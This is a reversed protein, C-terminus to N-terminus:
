DEDSDAMGQSEREADVEDMLALIDDSLPNDDALQATPMGEIEDMLAAFPDDAPPAASMVAQQPTEAANRSPAEAFGDLLTSFGGDEADAPPAIQDMLSDMTDPSDAVLYKLSSRVMLQPPGLDGQDDEGTANEPSQDMTSSAAKPPGANLGGQDEHGTTSEPASADASSSAAKPPAGAAAAPLPATSGNAHSPAVAGGARLAQIEAMMAQMQATLAHMESQVSETVDLAKQATSPRAARAASGATIESGTTKIAGRIGSKEILNDSFQKVRVEVSQPMEILGAIDMM